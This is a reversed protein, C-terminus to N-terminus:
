KKVVGGAAKIIKFNEYFANKSKQFDKHYLIGTSFAPDNIKQLLTNIAVVSIKDIYITDFKPMLATILPSLEDTLFVPKNDFFIKIIM